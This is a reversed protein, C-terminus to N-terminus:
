RMEQAVGIARDKVPIVLKLGSWVADIACVKVDVLGIALAMQRILDETVDTSVGSAKKPWSIWIMGNPVIEAKLLPLQRHLEAASKTFLQVWHKKRHRDNEEVVAPWEAFLRRYGEPENQLRVVLGEKLGLRKALPTAANHNSPM